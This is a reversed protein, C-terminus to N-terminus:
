SPNRADATRETHTTRPNCAARRASYSEQALPPLLNCVFWTAHEARGTSRDQWGQAHAWLMRRLSSLSTRVGCTPFPSSPAHVHLAPVGDYPVKLALCAVSTFKAQAHLAEPPGQPSGKKPRFLTAQPVPPDSRSWRGERCSWNTQERDEGLIQNQEL